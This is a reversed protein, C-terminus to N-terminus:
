LQNDLIKHVLEIGCGSIFLRHKKNPILKQTWDVLGGDSLNIDMQHHKLYIGFRVLRYYNGKGYDEILEFDYGNESLKRQFLAVFHPNEQRINIKLSLNKRDFHSTLLAYHVNLHAILQSIEFDYSGRDFGGSIACFVGFHATFAPNDFAQGRVHRHTTAYKVIDPNKNKKFDAAIKLALVNTADSVAETGRGASVVNNQNVEAVASCTGLPTLPSLIIPEFGHSDAMQLWALELSKFALANVKSPLVFRNQTFDVVLDAVKVKAAQKKYLIRIVPEFTLPYFFYRNVQGM